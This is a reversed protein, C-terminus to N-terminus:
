QTEERLIELPSLRSLGRDAFVGTAITIAVVLAAALSLELGGGAAPIRFVYHALLGNAAAALGCGILGALLGVVAYETLQVLRIQRRTAGLTRLLVSERVRQHRGAVVAAALIVMGTAITFFAIFDVVLVVKSFIRQISEILVALDFVRVEPFSEAFDRELRASDAPTQARLLMIMKKPAADLAGIPFVVAFNPELHLGEVLRINAVKTRIPVGEVNWVVEDGLKLPGLRGTM